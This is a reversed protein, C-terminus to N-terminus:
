TVLQSKTLVIVSYKREKSYFLLIKQHFTLFSIKLCEGKRYANEFYFTVPVIEPQNPPKTHGSIVNCKKELFFDEKYQIERKDHAAEPCFITAMLHQPTLVLRSEIVAITSSSNIMTFTVNECPIKQITGTQFIVRECEATQDRVETLSQNMAAHSADEPRPCILTSSSLLTRCENLDIVDRQFTKTNIIGCNEFVKVFKASSGNRDDEIVAIEYVEYKEAEAQPLNISVVLGSEDIM